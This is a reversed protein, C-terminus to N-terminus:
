PRPARILPNNMQARAAAVIMTLGAWAAIAAYIAYVVWFLGFMWNHYAIGIVNRGLPLDIAVLGDRKSPMVPKGNLTYRLRPNDWLLYKMTVPESSEVDFQLANANNCAFSHVVLPDAPKKAISDASEGAPAYVEIEALSLINQSDATERALQVRVYRGVASPTDITLSPSPMIRIRKQWLGPVTKERPITATPAAFASAKSITLWYDGLRQPEEARNWLKVAGIPKSSGLDIELWAGPETGTHTVSGESFVGSRNGDVARGAEGGGDSSQIAKTHLALNRLRGGSDQESGRVVRIYGNDYLADETPRSKTGSSTLPAVVVGGPLSYIDSASLSGTMPELSPLDSELAVVFDAGSMRLRDWQPHFRGDGKYPITAMYDARSSLYFNFGSYPCISIEKLVFHPFAKPFTEVGDSNWRPTIDVYKIMEKGQTRFRELYTLVGRRLSKDLMVGQRPVQADFTSGGQSRDYMVDLAPLAFLALTLVYAFVRGPVLVVVMALAAVLLEFVLYNNLGVGGASQPQHSLHWAVAFAAALFL